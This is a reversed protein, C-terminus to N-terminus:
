ATPETPDGQPQHQKEHVPPAVYESRRATAQGTSRRHERYRSLQHSLEVGWLIVDSTVFLWLMLGAISAMPGYTRAVHAVGLYWGFGARAVSCVLTAVAAPLWCEGWRVDVNPLVRYLLVLAIWVIVAEVGMVLVGNKGLTAASDMVSATLMAAGVTIALTAAIVYQLLINRDGRVDWARDFAYGVTLFVGLSSWLLTLVSLGVTPQQGFSATASVLPSADPLVAGLQSLVLNAAENSRLGSSFLLILLLTLPFLCLVGFFAMAAAHVGDAHAGFSKFTDLLVRAPAPAEREVAQGARRTAQAKSDFTARIRSSM